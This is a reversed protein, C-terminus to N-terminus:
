GEKVEPLGLWDFFPEVYRDWLDFSHTGEDYFADIDVGKERFKAVAGKVQEAGFDQLGVLSWLRPM